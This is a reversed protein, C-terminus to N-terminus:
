RDGVTIEGGCPVEVTHTSGASGLKVARAGCKVVVSEPTQGLTREDVFIRRGAAAGATRIRGMGPPLEDGAANASAATASTAGTATASPTAKTTAAVSTAASPAASAKASPSVFASGSASPAAASATVSPASSTAAATETAATPAAATPAAATTPVSRLSAVTHQKQWRMYGVVGVVGAAIAIVVVALAAVISRGRKPAASDTPISAHAASLSGSNHPPVSAIELPLSRGATPGRGPSTGPDPRPSPHSGTISAATAPPPAVPPLVGAGPSMAGLPLTAPPSSGTGSTAPPPNSGVAAPPMVFARLKATSPSLMPPAVPPMPSTQPSIEAPASALLHPPPRETPKEANALEAATPARDNMALTQNMAAFPPPPKDPPPSASPAEMVLTSDLRDSPAAGLPPPAAPLQGIPRAPPQPPTPEKAKGLKGAAGPPDTKPFVNPPVDSPIDRLIEDIADHLPRGPAIEALPTGLRLRESDSPELISALGRVSSPSAETEPAEDRDRTHAPAPPGLPPRAMPGSPPRPRPAGYAATARPVGVAAPRPAPTMKPLMGPKAPLMGRPAVNAADPTETAAAGRPMPVTATAGPTVERLTVGPAPPISTPAPKPEHRVAALAKALKERGEDTPVLARLVSVMEEATVSRKDARPVLARKIADRLGKDLDPRIVDISVIHPEALQRLVEIEPLAGRIFARRKTLMEWLIIAGAYVDARPTVTEGKVQEPAMYGYTGKILGASSQHSVGAVKAIGFDALKVHGDWPVLVNSPNVDRHIVPAPENSDDTAAHAAALADFICGAVFLSTSDDFTQGVSKLMGRLRSLPPGDIYELVMVLQDGNAFFDYLRVISPHSLRAYAAAERAFMGKFDDDHKYQSLLLKLVVSREFGHPGEAKALLVDSTGGTALRRVVRYGGIREGTGETKEM